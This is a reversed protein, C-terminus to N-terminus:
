SPPSRRMDRVAQGARAPCGPLGPFSGIHGKGKGFRRDGRPLVPANDTQALEGVPPLTLARSQETKVADFQQALSDAPLHRQRCDKDARATGSAYRFTHRLQVSQLRVREATRRIGHFVAQKVPNRFFIRGLAHNTHCLSKVFAVFHICYIPLVEGGDRCSGGDQQFREPIRDVDPCDDAGGRRQADSAQDEAPVAGVDVM